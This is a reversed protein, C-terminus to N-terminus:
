SRTAHSKKRGAKADYFDMIVRTAGAVVKEYDQTADVIMYNSKSNCLELFKQRRDELQEPSKEGKRAFLVEGPADLYIVLDPHPYMHELMFGHIRSSLLQRNAQKGIDFGYFDTFFHRDYIIVYGRLKYYSSLLQRYWEESLVVMLRLMGKVERRIRGALSENSHDKEPTNDMDDNDSYLKKGSLLRKLAHLMRTTPLATNSSSISVGMYLYKVPVPLTERLHRAVTTKGAGDPGIFAVTFM